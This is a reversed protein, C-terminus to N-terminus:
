ASEVRWVGVWNPGKKGFHEAEKETLRRVAYKRSFKRGARSAASRISNEQSKAVVFAEGVEMTEFPYTARHPLPMPTAIPSQKAKAHGNAKKTM